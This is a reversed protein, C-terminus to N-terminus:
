GPGSSICGRQPVFWCILQSPLLPMVPSFPYRVSDDRHALPSVTLFCEPYDPQSCEVGQDMEIRRQHTSHAIPGIGWRLCGRFKLGFTVFQDAGASSSRGPSFTPEVNGALRSLDATM